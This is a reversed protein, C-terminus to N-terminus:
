FLADFVILNGNFRVCHVLSVEKAKNFSLLL